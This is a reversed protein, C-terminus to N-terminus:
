RDCVVTQVMNVRQNRLDKVSDRINITQENLRNLRLLILDLAIFTGTRGVGASCLFLFHQQFPLVILVAYCLTAHCLWAM